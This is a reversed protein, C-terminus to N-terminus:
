NIDFRLGARLYHEHQDEISVKSSYGNIVATSSTGGVYLYRYNFDLSTVDSIKYSVGATVNAALTYVYQRSVQASYGTAATPTDCDNLVDPDCTSLSTTHSRKIDNVAFGVGAGVYPKWSGIRNMDYYGNAMFVASKLKTTDRVTGNVQVRNPAPTVADIYQFSGAITSEKNGRLEGTLDIRLNKSYYYGAGIAISHGYDAGTDSGFGGMGFPSTADFGGATEDVGYTMGSESVSTGMNLGLGVDARMYWKARHEPIPVPAPVPVYSGRLGSLGRSYDGAHASLGLLGPGAVVIAAIHLTIKRISTKM